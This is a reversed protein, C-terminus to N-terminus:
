IAKVALYGKACKIQGESADRDVPAEVCCHKVAPKVKSQRAFFLACADADVGM